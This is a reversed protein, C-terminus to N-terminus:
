ADFIMSVSPIAAELAVPSIPAADKGRRANATIDALEFFKRRAHSWCAGGQPRQLRRDSVDAFISLPPSSM